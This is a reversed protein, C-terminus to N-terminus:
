VDTPAVEVTAPVDAPMTPVENKQWTTGNFIVWDGVEWVSMGDLTVTGAVNVVYYHGLTGVGDALAPFNTSANWIGQYATAISPTRHQGISSNRYFVRKRLSLVGSPVEFMLHQGPNLRAWDAPYTPAAGDAYMVGQIMDLNTLWANTAPVVVQITRDGATGVGITTVDQGHVEHKM